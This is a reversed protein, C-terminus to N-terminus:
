RAIEAPQRGASFAELLRGAIAKLNYVGVAHDAETALLNSRARQLEAEAEIVAFNDAMDHAFKVEALALKGEAQRIQEARLVVRQRAEDLFALQQRVQRRIEATKSELNSRLTDVRLEARRHNMKEATRYLDSSAQLYVSWQRQTAPLYQQLFPDTVSGQGYNAQLALDPLLANAAVRAARMAEELEARLQVLEARTQVAEAEPDAVGLEPPPPAAVDIETNLNLNLILKLRNRATVYGNRAQNVADEADKLSIEARYTDLPTALGVREKNRAILAHRRLREALSENLSALQMQKVAEYYVGITELATNVKAQEFSRWSSAKAYDARYVGDLNAEAGFGKLLPQQISLNLTTNTTSGSRNWSPGVSVSTGSEFKQRLQAGIRNNAGTTNAALTNAGITGLAAVPVVKLEFESKAAQLGYEDAEYGLRSVLLSPNAALAASVARPLSLLDAARLDGSSMLLGLSLALLVVRPLAQM